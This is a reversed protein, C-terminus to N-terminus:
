GVAWGSGDRRVTVYGTPLRGDGADAMVLV